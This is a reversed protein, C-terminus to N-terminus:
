EKGQNLVNRIASLFEDKTFPKLIFAAIDLRQKDEDFRKFSDQGSMYIIPCSNTSKKIEEALLNGSMQPMNIDTIVLDVKMKELSNLAGAASTSGILLIDEGECFKQCLNLIHPENDVVMVRFVNQNLQSIMLTSQDVFSSVEISPLRIQFHAGETSDLLTLHGQHSAIIRSSISLGLGTGRGMEKTTFFTQFINERDTEAIGEGNDVVDIVVEEGDHSSSLRIEVLGNERQQDVVSDFANQLLNVLVQEIKTRNALILIDGEAEAIKLVVQKEDYFRKVMSISKRIIEKVDVYEKKDESKYLFEKMGQIIDTIRQHSEQINSLAEEISKRQRNLDEEELCFGILEANGSAVTLPNNIEHSIGATMEGITKLKDAQMIEEHSSKLEELKERYKDYLRKEVSMDNFSVILFEEKGVQYPSVRAVATITQGGFVFTKEEGIIVTKLSMAKTMLKELGYSSSSLLEAIGDVKKVIRPSLRFLTLFSSNVYIIEVTGKTVLVPINIDNFIEFANPNM